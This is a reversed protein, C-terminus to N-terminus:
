APAEAREVRDALPPDRGAGVPEPVRGRSWTREPRTSRSIPLRDVVRALRARRCAPPRQDRDASERLLRVARALIVPDSAPLRATRAPAARAAGRDRAGGRRAPRHWPRRRPLSELARPRSATARSSGVPLTTPDGTLPPQARHGRVVPVRTGVRVIVPPDAEASPSATSPPLPGRSRSPAGTPRRPCVGRGLCVLTETVTRTTAVGNSPRGPRGRRPGRPGLDTTREGPDIAVPAKVVVVYSFPDGFSAAGGSRRTATVPVAGSRRCGDRDDRRAGGPRGDPPSLGAEHPKEAPPPPPSPGLARLM